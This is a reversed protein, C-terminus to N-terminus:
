MGPARFELRRSLAYPIGRRGKVSMAVEQFPDRGHAGLRRVVFVRQVKRFGIEGHARAQGLALGAPQVAPLCDADVVAQALLLPPRGEGQMVARGIGVAVQMDTVGQVLRDLVHDHPRVLHHTMVRPVHGAPVAVAQRDLPLDLFLVALFAAVLVLDVHDVEALFAALEGFAPDVHLALLELAEADGPVPVIGVQGHVEVGLADDGLFEHLEQHVAGEVLPRLGHHPRRHFLGGQGLSLDFVVVLFAEGDPHLELDGIEGGPGAFARVLFFAGLGALRDDLRGLGRPLFEQAGMHHDPGRRGPGDRRVLGDDEAGVIVVAEVLDGARRIFAPQLDPLFVDQGVLQGGLGEGLRAQLIALPFADAVDAGILQGGHRQRVRQRTGFPRVAFPVRRAIEAGRGEDGVLFAGPEDVAGGRVPHLFVLKVPIEAHEILDDGVVHHVIAAETGVQGEEAALVDQVALATLAVGVLGDDVLQDLDAPQHRAALDLVAVRMGPTGLRRHDEAVCRLPEGRDVALNTVALVLVALRDPFARQFGDLVQHLERRLRAAVTQMRHHFATGVPHQRPLAGPAHRQGTEGLHAGQRGIGVEQQAIRGDVVADRLGELGLARIGPVLVAGLFPEQAIFVVRGLPLLDIVDEVHPEVTAGGVRKHQPIAGVPGLVANGVDVHFAGVLVAAPEVGGQQLGAAGQAARGIAVHHGMPERQVLLAVLHGLREAVGDCRLVDDLLVARVDQAEPDGLGVVHGVLPDPVRDQLAGGVAVATQAIGHAEDQAAQAIEALFVAHGGGVHGLQFAPDQMAQRLQVLDHLLAVAGEVELADELRHEVEGRHLQRGKIEVDALIREVAVAVGQPGLGRAAHQVDQEVPQGGPQRRHQAEGHFFDPQFAERALVAGDVQLVERFRRRRPLVLGERGLPGTHALRAADDGGRQLHLPDLLHDTGRQLGRRHDMDLVGIHQRRQLRHVEGVDADGRVQLQRGIGCRLLGVAQGLDGADGHDEFLGLTLLALAAPFDQRVHAGM